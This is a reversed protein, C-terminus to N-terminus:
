QGCPGTRHRSGHETLVVRDATRRQECSRRSSIASRLDKLTEKSAQFEHTTGNAARLTVKQSNRDIKVVQGEFKEPTSAPDCGPKSQALATGSLLALAVVPAALLRLAMRM